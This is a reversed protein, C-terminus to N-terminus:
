LQQPIEMYQLFFQTDGRVSLPQTRGGKGKSKYGMAAITAPLVRGETM